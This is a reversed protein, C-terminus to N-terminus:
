VITLHDVEDLMNNSRKGGYDFNLKNGKLGSCDCRKVFNQM